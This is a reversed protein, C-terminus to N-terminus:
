IHKWRNRKIINRIYGSDVRYRLSLEKNSGGLKGEERISLVDSETLKSCKHGEGVKFQNEGRGKKMMDHTNDKNTGLFLHKPNCCAPNDCRHLVASGVPDIKYHLFYAIRPATVPVDKQPAITVSFKGYGRHKYGTYNWCKDPNATYTLKSKFRCVDADSLKPLEKTRVEKM